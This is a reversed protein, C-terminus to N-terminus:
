KQELRCLHNILNSRSITYIITEIIRRILSRSFFARGFSIQRFDPDFCRPEASFPEKRFMQWELGAVECSSCCSRLFFTTLDDLGPVTRGRRRDDIAVCDHNPGSRSAFDNSSCGLSSYLSFCLLRLFSSLQHACALQELRQRRRRFLITTRSATTTSATAAAAVTTTM